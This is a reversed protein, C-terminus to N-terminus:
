VNRSQLLVIEVLVKTALCLIVLRMGVVIRVSKIHLHMSLDWSGIKM